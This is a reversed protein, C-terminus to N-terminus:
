RSKTKNNEDFGKPKRTTTKVKGCYKCRCSYEDYYVTETYEDYGGPRPYGVYVQTTVVKSKTEKKFDGWVHNNTKCLEIGLEHIKRQLSENEKKLGNIENDKEEIIKKKEEEITNAKNKNNAKLEILCDIYESRTFMGYNNKEPTPYFITYQEGNDGTVMYLDSEEESGESICYNVKGVATPNKFNKQESDYIIVYEGDKLKKKEM